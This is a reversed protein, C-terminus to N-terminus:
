GYVGAHYVEEASLKNKFYPCLMTAVERHHRRGQCVHPRIRQSRLRDEVKLVDSTRATM